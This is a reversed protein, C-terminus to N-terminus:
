DGHGYVVRVTITSAVPNGGELELGLDVAGGPIDVLSAAYSAYGLAEWLPVFSTPVGSEGWLQVGASLVQVASLDAATCFRDEAATGGSIPSLVAADTTLAKPVYPGLDGTVGAGLAVSAYFTVQHIVDSLQFTELILLDNQAADLLTAFKCIKARLRGGAYEIENKTVPVAVRNAKQTSFFNAM